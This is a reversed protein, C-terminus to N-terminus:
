VLLAPEVVVAPERVQHGHDLVVVGREMQAQCGGLLVVQHLIQQRQLLSGMLNTYRASVTTPPWRAWRTSPTAVSAPSAAVTTIPSNTTGGSAFWPSTCRRIYTCTGAAHTANRDKPTTNTALRPYRFVPRTWHSRTAAADASIPTSNQVSVMTSPESHPRGTQPVQHVQSGRSVVVATNSSM